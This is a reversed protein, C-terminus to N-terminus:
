ADPNVEWEKEEEEMLEELKDKVLEPHPVAAFEFNAEEAATQIHIDGYDFVGAFVGVRTVSVDQIKSIRTSSTKHYLISYWDIDVVRENTVIYVNFYWYLFNIFAYTFIALYWFILAVIGTGAGSFGLFNLSGVLPALILPFALLALTILFWKVNTVIHARMLLIIEEDADEGQFKVADPFAAFASLISPSSKANLLKNTGNPDPRDIPPKVPEALPKEPPVPLPRDAVAVSVAVSVPDPEQHDVKIRPVFVNYLIV